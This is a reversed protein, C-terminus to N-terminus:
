TYPTIEKDRWAAFPVRLSKFFTWIIDRVGHLDLRIFAETRSFDRAFLRILDPRYGM